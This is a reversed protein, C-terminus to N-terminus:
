DAEVRKQVKQARKERVKQITSMNNNIAILKSYFLWLSRASFDLPKTPRLFPWPNSHFLKERLKLHQVDINCDPLKRTRKNLCIISSVFSYM